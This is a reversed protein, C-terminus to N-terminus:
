ALQGVLDDLHERHGIRDAALARRDAGRHADGDRGVVADFALVQDVAGVKGEIDRLVASAALKAEIGCVELVAGFFAADQHFVQSLCQRAIREIEMILRNNAELVVHHDAELRQHAPLMRLAAITLGASNMGMASSDFRMMWSPSHASFRAQRSAACIGLDIMM